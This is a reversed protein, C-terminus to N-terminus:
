CGAGAAGETRERAGMGLALSIEAEAPPACCLVHGDAKASLQIQLVPPGSFVNTCCLTLLSRVNFSKEHPKALCLHSLLSGEPHKNSNTRTCMLFLWVRAAGFSRHLSCGCGVWCLCLFWIKGVGPVPFLRAPASLLWSSVLSGM